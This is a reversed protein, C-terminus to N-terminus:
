SPPYSGQDGRFGETPPCFSGAAGHTIIPVYSCSFIGALGVLGTLHALARFASFFRRALGSFFRFEFIRFLLRGQSLLIMSWAEYDTIVKINPDDM